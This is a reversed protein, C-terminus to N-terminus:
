EICDPRQDYRLSYPIFLMCSGSVSPGECIEDCPKYDHRQHRRETKGSRTSAVQLFVRGNEDASVNTVIQEPRGREWMGLRAERAARQAELDSEQPESEYAFVHALGQRLLALRAEPCDILLRGYTDKKPQKSCAWRGAAAQDRASYALHHLAEPTWEGWRHVPGYSELTNYGVLRGTKGKFPGSLLSFTDGDNWLVLTSKGRLVIEGQVGGEKDSASTVGLGLTFAVLIVLSLAFRNM